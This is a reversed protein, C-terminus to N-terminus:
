RVVTPLWGIWVPLRSAISQRYELECKLLFKQLKAEDVSM